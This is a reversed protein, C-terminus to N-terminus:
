TEQKDQSAWRIGTKEGMVREREMREGAEDKRNRDVGAGEVRQSEKPNLL